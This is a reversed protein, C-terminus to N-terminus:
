YNTLFQCYLEKQCNINKVVLFRRTSTTRYQAKFDKGVLATQQYSQCVTQIWILGVNQLCNPDLDPGVYQRAQDPDLSNAVRITNRCSKKQFFNIKFLNLRHCFLVFIVWYAFLWFTSISKWFLLLIQKKLCDKLFFHFYILQVQDASDWDTFKFTSFSPCVLLNKMSGDKFPDSLILCNM